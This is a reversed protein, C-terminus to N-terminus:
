AELAQLIRAIQAPEKVAIRIYGGSEENPEFRPSMSTCDRLFVKKEAAKSVVVQASTSAPVQALLFNTRSPFTRYGLERMGADLEARLAHTEEYRAEYYSLARLAEIGALQALMGIGWPPSLRDLEERIPNQPSMVLYGLRLGSLAYVKSMSKSVILNPFTQTLPEASQGAGLYDVYTEDIWVQTSKPLQNLFAEIESRSLAQGTPSNPNVLVVLDMGQAREALADPDAQFDQDPSLDLTEIEAPAVHTLLHRYEGYTPDLLLARGRSPMLRPFAQFMLTSTGAGLVLQDESLGRSKAVQQRLGDSHTPPSTKILWELHPRIAELIQPAPPYWADLVDASIVESNQDLGAFDEGIAKFFDGGHVAKVM